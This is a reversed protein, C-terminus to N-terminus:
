CLDGTADFAFYDDYGAAVGREADSAGAGVLESAVAGLCDEDAVERGGM